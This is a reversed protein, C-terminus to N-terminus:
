CIGVKRCEDCLESWCKGGKCSKSCCESDKRCNEPPRLCPNGEFQPDHNPCWLEDHGNFCSTSRGDCRKDQTVYGGDCCNYCSNKSCSDIDRNCWDCNPGPDCNGYVKKQCQQSLSFSICAVVLIGVQTHFGM